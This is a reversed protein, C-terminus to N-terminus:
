LTPVAALIIFFHHGAAFGQSYKHSKPESPFETRAQSQDDMKLDADAVGIKKPPAVALHAEVKMRSRGLARARRAIGCIDYNHSSAISGGSATSAVLLRIRQM